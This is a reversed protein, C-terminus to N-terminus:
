AARRIVRYPACAIVPGGIERRFIDVVGALRIEQGPLPEAWHLLGEARLYLIRAEIHGPAEFTICFGDFDKAPTLACPVERLLGRVAAMLPELPHAAAALTSPLAVM